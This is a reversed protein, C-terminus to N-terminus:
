AGNEESLRRHLIAKACKVLYRRGPFQKYLLANAKVKLLRLADDAALLSDVRSRIAADLDAAPQMGPLEKDFSRIFSEYSYKGSDILDRRARQTIERRLSKDRFRELVEDYNTFDKKLPIYHRLPEMIGSYKGEYLIQCTEFAAAEFHRPSITRYYINGEWPALLREEMEEFTMEPNERVLREYELRVIDEIDFISVGAEVGLFGKCCGLFRYWSDGYLRGEERTDIDAAIGTGLIRKRFECAIETKERAGRGMYYKLERGRYGIDIAREEEPLRFRAAKELLNDSVYGPIHYIVRPVKTYKGYVSPVFQEELLTYICDIGHMDIFAFRQRCYHHEDQFFAIKYSDRDGDLWSLFKENLHYGTTGWLSYHLVVVPFRIRALGRPFGLETNLKWVKYRSHREFAEVHEMITPANLLLPHHYLLLIGDARIPYNMAM